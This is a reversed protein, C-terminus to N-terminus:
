VTDQLANTIQKSTIRNIRNYKWIASIPTNNNAGPYSRIQRVIAAAAQVPCLTVNSSAMHTTTNNKEDKKQMEFTINICDSYKLSPNNHNVLPRTQLISPKPPLPNQNM